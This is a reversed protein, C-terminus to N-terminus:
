SVFSINGQTFGLNVHECTRGREGWREGWGKPHCRCNFLIYFHELKTESTLWSPITHFWKAICQNFLGATM